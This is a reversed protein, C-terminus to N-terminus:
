LDIDMLGRGGLIDEEESYPNPYGHADSASRSSAMEIQPEKMSAKTEASNWGSKEAADIRRGFLGRQGRRPTSALWTVRHMHLREATEM